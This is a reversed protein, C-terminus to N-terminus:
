VGAHGWCTGSLTQECPPRPPYQTVSSSLLSPAGPDQPASRSSCRGVEGHCSKGRSPLGGLSRRTAILARRSALAWCSLCPSQLIWPLLGGDPTSPTNLGQLQTQTDWGQPHGAGAQCLGLQYHVLHAAPRHPGEWPWPRRAQGHPSTGVQHLHDEPPSKQTMAKLLTSAAGLPMPSLATSPTRWVKGSERVLFHPGSLAPSEWTRPALTQWSKPGSSPPLLVGWKFTPSSTVKLSLRQLSPTVTQTHPHRVWPGMEKAWLSPDQSDLCSLAQRFVEQGPGLPRPPNSSALRPPQPLVRRFVLM